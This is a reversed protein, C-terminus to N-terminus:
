WSVLLTFSQYPPEGSELEVKFSLQPNAKLLGSLAMGRSWAPGFFEVHNDTGAPM